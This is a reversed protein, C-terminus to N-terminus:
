RTELSKARIRTVVSALSPHTQLKLIIVGNQALVTAGYYRSAQDRVPNAGLHDTMKGPEGAVTQRRHASAKEHTILHPQPSRHSSRQLYKTARCESAGLACGQNGDPMRQTQKYRPGRVSGSIGKLVDLMQAVGEIGVALDKGLAAGLQLVKQEQVTGYDHAAGQDLLRAAPALAQDEHIGHRHNTLASM